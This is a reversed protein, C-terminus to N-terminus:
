RCGKHSTDKPNCRINKLMGMGVLCVGGLGGRDTLSVLSAGVGFILVFVEGLGLNAAWGLVMML